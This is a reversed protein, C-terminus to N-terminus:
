LGLDERTRSALLGLDVPLGAVMLVVRDAAAAAAQNAQGLLDRYVRGLPHVPVVGLGVEGSVIVVTGGRARCAELLRAVAAEVREPGEAMENSVLLTLCDVVTAGSRPASALRDGTRRPAELTNWAPPRGRRHSEIRRAMEEDGAEGTAVFLVEDGGRRSALEQAFASKGSRVGGLVLVMETM